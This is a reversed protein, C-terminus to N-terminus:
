NALEHLMNMMLVVHIVQLKQCLVKCKHIDCIDYLIVTIRKAKSILMQNRQPNTQEAKKNKLTVLEFSFMIKSLM